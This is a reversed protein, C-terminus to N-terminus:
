VWTELENTDVPFVKINNASIELKHQYSWLTSQSSCVDYEHQSNRFLKYTVIGESSTSPPFFWSAVFFRM